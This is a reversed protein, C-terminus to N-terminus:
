IQALEQKIEAALAELENANGQARGHLQLSQGNWAPILHTHYHFVTQGAAARNLQHVGLGDAGVVRDLVAAIRHSLRAVAAMDDPDADFIDQCHRKPIILTHGRSAPFLDLFAICRGDEYLHYAPAEGAVIQCFICESM